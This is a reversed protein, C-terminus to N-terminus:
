EIVGKKTKTKWFAFVENGNEKKKHSEDKHTIEKEEKEREGKGKM